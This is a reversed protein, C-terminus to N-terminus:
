DLSMMNVDPAEINCDQARLVEVGEENVWDDPLEEIALSHPPDDDRAAAHWNYMYPLPAGRPVLENGKVTAMNSPSSSSSLPYSDFLPMTHANAGAYTFEYVHNGDSAPLPQWHRRLPVLASSTGVPLDSLSIQEIPLSDVDIVQAASPADRPQQTSSEDDASSTIEEITTGLDSAYRRRPKKRLVGYADPEFDEAAAHKHSYPQPTRPPPPSVSRDSIRRSPPPLATSPLSTSPPLHQQQQQQGSHAEPSAFAVTPTSSSASSVPEASWPSHPLQSTFASPSLHRMKRRHMGLTSGGDEMDVAMYDNGDDARTRKLNYRQLQQQQQQQQPQGYMAAFSTAGAAAATATGLMSAQVLLPPSSFPLSLPLPQASSARNRAKSVSPYKTAWVFPGLDQGARERRARINRAKDKLQVQDRKALVQSRIGNVGYYQLITAYSSRFENMAEELAQEEQPSWPVRTRRIAIEGSDGSLHLSGDGDLVSLDASPEDRGGVTCPLANLIGAAHKADITFPFAAGFDGNFSTALIGPSSPNSTNTAADVSRGSPPRLTFPNFQYPMPSSSQNDRSLSRVLAKDQPRPQALPAELPLHGLEADGSAPAANQGSLGPARGYPLSMSPGGSDIRPRRLADPRDDSEYYSSGRARKLENLVSFTLQQAQELQMMLAAEHQKSPRTDAYSNRSSTALACLAPTAASVNSYPSSALPLELPVGEFASELMTHPMMASNAQTSAISFSSPPSPMTPHDANGTESHAIAAPSAPGVSGAQQDLRLLREMTTDMDFRTCILQRLYDQLFSIFSSHPYRLLSQDYPTCLLETKREALLKDLSQNGLADESKFLEDLHGGALYSQTKLALVVDATGPQQKWDDHMVESLFGDAAIQYNVARGDPPGLFVAGIFLALQVAQMLSECLGADFVMFSHSAMTLDVDSISSGPALAFHLVRKAFYELSAAVGPELLLTAGIVSDHEDEADQQGSVAAVDEASQQVAASLTEVDHPSLAATTVAGSILEFDPLMIFNSSAPMTTTILGATTTALQTSAPFADLVEPSPQHRERLLQELIAQMQQQHILEYYSPTHKNARVNGQPHLATDLDLSDIDIDLSSADM